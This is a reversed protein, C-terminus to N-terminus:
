DTENAMEMLNDYVEKWYDTGQPSFDWIFANYLADALEVLEEDRDECVEKTNDVVLKLM